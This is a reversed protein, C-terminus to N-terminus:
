ILSSINEICFEAIKQSKFSIQRIEYNYYNLILSWSLILDFVFNDLKFQM